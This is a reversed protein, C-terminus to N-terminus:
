RRTPTRRWAPSCGAPRTPRSGAPSRRRPCCPASRRLRGAGASPAAPARDAPLVGDALKPFSRAFREFARRWSRGDAGMGAATDDLSRMMVGARGGDIPHALDVEPYRWELGHDALPLSTLYPSGVAFPHVASCVDHIVGPVTLEATRTGGGITPAAEFVTVSRGAQALTLAAALGNPGSGIVVADLDPTRAPSTM